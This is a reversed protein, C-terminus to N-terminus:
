KFFRVLLASPPACSSLAELACTSACQKAEDGDRKYGNERKGWCGSRKQTTIRGCWLFFFAWLLLNPRASLMSKKLKDLLSGM